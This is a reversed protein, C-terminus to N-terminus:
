DDGNLLDYCGISGRHDFPELVRGKLVAGGRGKLVWSEYGQDLQPFIM